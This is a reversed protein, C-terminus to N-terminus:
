GAIEQVVLTTHGDNWFVHSAGTTTLSYFRFVASSTDQADWFHTHRTQHAGTNFTYQTPNHTDVLGNGWTDNSNNGTINVNNVTARVSWWAPSTIFYEYYHLQCYLLNTSKTKTFTPTGWTTLEVYSSSTITQTGSSGLVYEQTQVVAGASPVLTGGSVDLTQGSPILLKNANAGSSPGQLNQVTLTGAM